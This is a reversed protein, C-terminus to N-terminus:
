LPSETTEQKTRPRKVTAQVKEEETWPAFDRRVLGSYFWEGMTFVDYVPMHMADQIAKAFCPLQTCELLIAGVTPNERVLRRACEVLEKELDEQVYPIGDREVGRLHGNPPTGVIPIRDGNAIGLKEFHKGTLRDNDFTIVGVIKGAPLFAQIAPIQLLSSTAIPIPLRKSLRQPSPRIDAVQMKGPRRM